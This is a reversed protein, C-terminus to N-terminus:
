IVKYLKEYCLHMLKPAAELSQIGVIPRLNIQSTLASSSTKELQGNVYFSVIRSSDLSIKLHYVSNAALTVGTDLNTHTGSISYYARLNPSGGDFYFIAQDADAAPVLYNTLRLGALFVLSSISPGTVIGFELVLQSSTSWYTKDWSSLPLYPDVAYTRPEIIVSDSESGDTELMIGARNSYTVDDSSANVGTVMFNPNKTIIKRMEDKIPNDSIINFDTVIGPLKVFFEELAYRPLPSTPPAFFSFM